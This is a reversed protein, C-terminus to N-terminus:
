SKTVTVTYTKNVAGNTVKVSLTNEGIQWTASSGNQVEAEGNTITIQAEPHAATATVKNTANTTAATYATQEPSFEPTLSLSGITLGSLDAM